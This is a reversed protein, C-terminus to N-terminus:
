ARPAPLGLRRDRLVPFEARTKAVLALDIDVTLLQEEDGAEALIGGWPDIVLSHGGLVVGEQSGVQNCGIVFVQNEVARARLLLQWHDLRAAPWGAPVVVLEAGADLFLRYLEPFRIDYCTTMAMTTFDGLPFTSADEGATLTAAEGHDFGFLHIKRYTHVLQGQPDILVATNHRDAGNIEIFTGAVVFSGSERAATAVASLAAGPLVEASREFGHYAFAGPVWLEPLVVLNVHRQAAVIGAVRDIREAQAESDDIRLQAVAVRM